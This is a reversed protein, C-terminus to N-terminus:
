VQAAETQYLVLFRYEMGSKGGIGMFAQGMSSILDPDM